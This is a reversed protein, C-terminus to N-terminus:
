TTAGHTQANTPKRILNLAENLKAQAMLLQLLAYEIQDEVSPGFPRNLAASEAAAMYNTADYCLAEVEERHRKYENLDTFM